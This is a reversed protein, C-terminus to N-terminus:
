RVMPRDRYDDQRGILVPEDPALSKGSGTVGLLVQDTLGKALGESLSEIAKPQDGTPEFPAVLKFDPM